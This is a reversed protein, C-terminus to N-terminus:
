VLMRLFFSIIISSGCGSNGPGIRRGGRASGIGQGDVATLVMNVNSLTDPGHMRRLGPLVMGATQCRDESKVSPGWNVLGCKSDLQRPRLQEMDRVRGAAIVGEAEFPMGIGESPMIFNPKVAGQGGHIRM